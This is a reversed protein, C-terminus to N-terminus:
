QKKQMLSKWKISEIIKYFINSKYNNYNNIYSLIDKEYLFNLKHISITNLIIKIYESSMSDTIILFADLNVVSIILSIKYINEAFNLTSISYKLSQAIEPFSLSEVFYANFGNIHHQSDLVSGVFNFVHTHYGDRIAKKMYSVDRNYLGSMLNSHVLQYMLDDTIKSEPIPNITKSILSEFIIEM